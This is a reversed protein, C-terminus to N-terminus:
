EGVIYIIGYSCIIIAYGIVAWKITNQGSKVKEPNDGATLIQFAGYIVLIVLIPAGIKILYGIIGKLLDTFSDYKLPNAFGGTGGGIDALSFSTSIIFLLPIFLFLLAFKNKLLKIM